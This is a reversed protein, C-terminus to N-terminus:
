PRYGPLTGYGAGGQLGSATPNMFPSRVPQGVPPRMDVRPSLGAGGSPPPTAWGRGFEPRALGSSGGPGYSGAPPMISPALSSPLGAYGGGSSSNWAFPSPIGGPAKPSAEAKGDARDAMRGEEPDADRIRLGPASLSNTAESGFRERVSGGLAPRSAGRDERKLGHLPKKGTANGFLDRGMIAAIEGAEEEEAEQRNREEHKKTKEERLSQVEDALWGFSEEEEEDKGSLLDIEKQVRQQPTLLWDDEDKKREKAARMAKRASGQPGQQMAPTTNRGVLSSRMPADEPAASDQRAPGAKSEVPAAPAAGAADMTVSSNYLRRTRKKFILEDTAAANTGIGADPAVPDVAHVPAGAVLIGAAAAAIRVTWHNMSGRRARAEAIM